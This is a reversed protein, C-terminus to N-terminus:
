VEQLQSNLPIKSCRKNRIFNAKKQLFNQWAMMFNTTRDTNDGIFALFKRRSIAWAKGKTLATATAKYIGKFSLFDMGLLDGCVDLLISRGDDYALLIVGQELIFFYRATEGDTTLIDGANLVRKEFMSSLTQFEEKQLFTLAESKKCINKLDTM